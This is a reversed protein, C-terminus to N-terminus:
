VLVVQQSEMELKCLKELMIEYEPLDAISQLGFRLLFEDTTGYLIPKGITDKRGVQEIVGYNTLTAIAYDANVGRIQEIELKTIPQRYAIIAATELSSVSLRKQVIPNLISEVTSKYIPNSVFAVNDGYQVLHIGCSGSYKQRLRAISNSLESAQVQMSSCLELMSQGAGSVHLVAELINDLQEINM